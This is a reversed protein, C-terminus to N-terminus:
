TASVLAGASFDWLLQQTHDGCRCSFTLRDLQRPVRRFALVATKSEGPRLTLDTDSIVELQRRLRRNYLPGSLFVCLEFAATIPSFDILLFLLFDWTFESLKRMVVAPKEVDFTKGKSTLRASALLIHADSSQPNTAEIRILAIKKKRAKRAYLYENDRLFDDCKISLSTGNM